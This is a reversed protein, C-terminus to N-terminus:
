LARLHIKDGQIIVPRQTCTIQRRIFLMRRPHAYKPPIFHIKVLVAIAPVLFIHIQFGALVPRLDIGHSEPDHQVIVIRPIMQRKDDRFVPQARRIHQRRIVSDMIIVPDIIYAAM